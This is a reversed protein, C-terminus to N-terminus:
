KRCHYVVAPPFNLWVVSSREVRSFYRGLHRRFKRGAPLFLGQLYAFTVFSGGPPMVALMSELISTQLPDPFVAWPLGSVVCDIGAVEEQQCFSAIGSACGVHVSLGPHEQRLANAFDPNIEVCFFRQDPRLRALIHRTFSGTGPGYEAIVRSEALGSLDLMHKALHRSSPAVAGTKRPNGLAQKFFM